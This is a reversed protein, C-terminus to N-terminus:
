EAKLSKVPNMLAAKISQFSVTILAIFIAALGAAAFIWWQVPTHYVFGQLWKNMAWWAIPSAILIALAVLKLFDVSLLTTIGSVSAGLVKRIGIEKSRQEAMFASLAFLGLCAIIIALIAFTTFIHGMRQVDAYMSAFSEDMFTYRIPQNPAFSKWTATISQLTNKMDQGKVKISVLSPSLGFHLILPEIERHMSDFNFDAVVGIVTGANGNSIRAGIPHKLNLRKVMTQNIIITKGATDDSMDYSFNRGEVLKMGLTKLYTDDIQWLQGQVHADLTERGEITFGDGNRKSGAEIPLYDSISVSKVSALKQLETKFSRVNKDGLTNAGQVIVVQDKDFGVKQNLIYHMQNYIVMTGIILIISATFQFVVLSNRLLSGKSGTSLTGKLVQVPKFGSLYFAPYLGAVVGVVAASVLVVPLLWWEGWPMTLSKSALSNFYPLLLWALLLGIIFSLFSYLLSETLFQKILGSRNSGVVKRLGVEKARNASKATALNVFNICAIILIFVAVGGFLWTFRIDGHQLGDRIDYSYLNIDTVPQLTIHIKAAEQAPNKAGGKIINPLFYKKVIEATIKQEFAKADTGPKLLVYTSYNFNGWANQEGQWFEKGTLTVMFDYQLHSTAPFNEMVGGVTYAQTNDNNFYMLKGVPNQGPFYKDAKRRSLVVTHSRALASARDGYVMPLKLIDLMSQDAFTIGEEYSNQVQDARRLEATGAGMLTNPMLRGAFEVQPFDTKLTKALPAPWEPGKGVTGNDTYVMVVRFIRNADPYSKDYSLENRIYLAILLCAAISFAFGGIKIAAYMKQRRLQRVAIKFYNKFMYNRTLNGTSWKSTAEHNSIVAAFRPYRGLNYSPGGKKLDNKYEAPNKGTMQKFTRNFTTKSNFGSEFAIGLLTIHDYAPDQMKQIVDAVRYENIFDNFSKKLVTNIIRSLEHPGLELKEALSNLSLEPDQYYLNAEMAKKLWVGKQKLAAPPLPKSVPIAQISVGAEPRFLAKVAIWILVVALLLYLPYFAHIGPQRYYYFYDMATYPIWLLWLLGFSTLLRHLWRLEYRYRDSLNNFELRQYFREILRFSWYLYTAVSIFALLQLVPNLQQFTVTEYTVAGTRTSERIELVLVGQQLLLPSFHLLEKWRLKPEPRTIKLVYFYILPGLTLSFQLPLWSWRPFYVGLRIDIGLIWVMWLVITVLALCLFRNAARNIRKTFWLLSAFTLGIFIAGVFALDYPTIHFTYSNM